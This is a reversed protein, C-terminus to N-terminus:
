RYFMSCLTLTLLVLRSSGSSRCVQFNIGYSGAVPTEEEENGVNDEEDLTDNDTEDHLNQIDFEVRIQENNHQRTLVVVGSGMETQIKFSKEIINKIDEVEKDLEVNANEEDFEDMLITALRETSSVSQTAFAKKAIAKGVPTVLRPASLTLGRAAVTAIAKTARVVRFM